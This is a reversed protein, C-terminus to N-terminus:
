KTVAATKQPLQRNLEALLQAPPLYGGIMAGNELVITPTGQLAFKEVLEYDRAIQPAKCSADKTLKEGRKARTLADRRDKACWVAEMTTWSETNPGSRPYAVYRIGIGLENYKAIESHLKRCFGCDVDTFVTLWYKPAEPAFEIMDSHPIKALETKRLTGRDQETVNTRSAVDYLDGVIFYRGDETVYGEAGGMKARYMGRVPSADISVVQLEPDAQELAARIKEISDDRAQLSHAFLSAVSLAVISSLKIRM